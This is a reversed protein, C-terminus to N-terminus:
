KQKQRLHSSVMQSLLTKLSGADQMDKNNLYNAQYRAIALEAKKPKKAKKLEINNGSMVKLTLDGYGLVTPWFGNIDYGVGEIDEYGLRTSANSFIGRWEVTLIGMDTVLWVDSYSDVMVYFYRILAIISWIIAIIFFLDSNFGIVYIGWPIIIGFFGVELVPKFIDVWHKHVSYLVKEGKELHKSFILKEIIM